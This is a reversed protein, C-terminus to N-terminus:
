QKRKKREPHFSVVILADGQMAVKLYMRRARSRSYWAFPFLEEGVCGEEYAREPPFPGNYHRPTIERLAEVLARSIDDPTYLDLERM